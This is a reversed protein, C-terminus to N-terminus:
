GYITTPHVTSAVIITHSKQCPPAAYPVERPVELMPIHLYLQRLFTGHHMVARGHGYRVLLSVDRQQPAEYLLHRTRIKQRSQRTTLCGTHLALPPRSTGVSVSALQFIAQLYRFSSCLFATLATDHGLTTSDADIGCTYGPV